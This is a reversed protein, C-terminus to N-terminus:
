FKEPAEGSSETTEGAGAGAGAGTGAGAGAVGVCMGKSKTAVVFAGLPIFGGRAASPRPKAQRAAPAPLVELAHPDTPAKPYTDDYGPASGTTLLRALVEATFPPTPTRPPMERPTRRSSSQHETGPTPTADQRAFEEMAKRHADREEPTLERSPHPKHSTPLLAAKPTSKSESEAKPESNSDSDSDKSLYSM